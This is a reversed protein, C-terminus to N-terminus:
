AFITIGLVLDLIEEKARNLGYDSCAGDTSNIFLVESKEPLTIVKRKPTNLDVLIIEMERERSRIVAEYEKGDYVLRLSDGFLVKSPLPDWQVIEDVKRRFIFHIYFHVTERSIQRSPLIQIAEKLVTIPNHIYDSISFDWDKLCRAVLANDDESSAKRSTNKSTIADNM